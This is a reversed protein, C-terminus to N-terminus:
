LKGTKAKGDHHTHTQPNPEKNELEACGTKQRFEESTRYDLSSHSRECNYERRWQAPTERV